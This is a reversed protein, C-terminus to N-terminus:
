ENKNDEDHDLEYGLNRRDFKTSAQRGVAFLVSERTHACEEDDEARNLVAIIRDLRRYLQSCYELLDSHSLEKMEDTIVGLPYTRHFYRSEDVM